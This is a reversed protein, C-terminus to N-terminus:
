RAEEWQDLMEYTEALDRYAEEDEPFQETMLELVSVKSEIYMRREQLRAFSRYIRIDDDYKQLLKLYVEEADGGRQNAFLIEAYNIATDVDYPDERYLREYQVLLSELDELHYYANAKMRIFDLDDPHKEMGQGSLEVVRNWDGSEMALFVRNKLAQLHGSDLRLVTLLAQEARELDGSQYAEASITLEADIWRNRVRQETVGLLESFSHSEYYRFLDRLIEAALDARQQRLKSEAILWKFGSESQFKQLGEEAAAEALLPFNRELYTASLMLYPEPIHPYQETLTSFLQTAQEYQGDNFLQIGREIDSGQGMADSLILLSHFILFLTLLRIVRGTM